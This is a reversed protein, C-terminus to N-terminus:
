YCTYYINKPDFVWIVVVTIVKHEQGQGKSRCTAHQKVFEDKKELSYLQNTTKLWLIWYVAM